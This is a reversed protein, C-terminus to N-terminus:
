KNFKKYRKQYVDKKVLDIWEHEKFSRQSLYNDFINKPEIEKFLFEGFPSNYEIFFLVSVPLIDINDYFEERDLLIIDIKKKYFDNILNSIASYKYLTNIKLYKTKTIPNISEIYDYGSSNYLIGTQYKLLSDPYTFDNIIENDLLFYLADSFIKQSHHYDGRQFGIVIDYQDIEDKFITDKKIIKYDNKSIKKQINGLGFARRVVTPNSSFFDALIIESYKGHYSNYYNENILIHIKRNNKKKSDKQTKENKTKDDTKRFKLFEELKQCSFLLILTVVVLGFKRFM